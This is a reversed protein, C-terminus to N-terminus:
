RKRTRGSEINLNPDSNIRGKEREARDDRLKQIPQCATGNAKSNAGCIPLSSTKRGRRPASVPQIGANASDAGGAYSAGIYNNDVPASSEGGTAGSSLGGGRHFMGGYSGGGSYNQGDTSSLARGGGSTNGSALAVGTSEAGGNGVAGLPADAGSSGLGNTNGSAVETKDAAPDKKVENGAADHAVTEEGIVKGDKDLIQKKTVPGSVVKMLSEQHVQSIAGTAATKAEDTKATTTVDGTQPPTVSATPAKPTEQKPAPQQQQPTPKKAEEGQPKSAAMMAGTALLPLINSGIGQGANKMKDALGRNVPQTTIPANNALSDYPSTQGSDATSGSDTPSTGQAPESGSDQNLAVPAPMQDIEESGQAAAAMADSNAKATVILAEANSIEGNCHTSAKVAYAREQTLIGRQGTLEEKKAWRQPSPYLCEVVQNFQFMDNLARDVDEASSKCSEFYKKANAALDEISDFELAGSKYKLGGKGNSLPQIGTRINRYETDGSNSQQQYYGRAKALAARCAPVIQTEFQQRRPTLKTKVLSVLKQDEATPPRRTAVLKEYKDIASERSIGKFADGQQCLADSWEQYWVDINCKGETSGEGWPAM